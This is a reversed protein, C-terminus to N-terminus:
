ERGRGDVEDLRQDLRQRLSLCEVESAELAQHLEVIVLADDALQEDHERYARTLEVGAQVLVGAIAGALMVGAALLIETRARSM